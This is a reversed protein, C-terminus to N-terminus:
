SSPYSDSTALGHELPITVRVTTGRRVHSEIELQGGYRRIVGAALTLGVGAHGKRTSFFAETARSLTEPRMGEGTDSVAIEVADGTESLDIRIAIDDESVTAEIANQVVNSLATAAQDPDVVVLVDAFSLPVQWTIGPRGVREIANKIILVPDTPRARGGNQYASLPAVITHIRDNRQIAGLIAAQVQEVAQVAEGEIGQAGLERRIVHFQRRANQLLHDIETVEREATAGVEAVMQGVRAFDERKSAGERTAELQRRTRALNVSRRILEDRLDDKVIFDDAGHELAHEATAVQHDGSLVIIPVSPLAARLKHVTQAGTSDPLNLDTFILDCQQSSLWAIASSISSVSSVKAGPFANKYRWRFIEDDGPNDEILLVSQAM